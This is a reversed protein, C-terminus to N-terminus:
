ASKALSWFTMSKSRFVIYPHDSRNQFASPGYKEFILNADVFKVNKTGKQFWFPINSEMDPKPRFFWPNGNSNCFPVFKLFKILFRFYPSEAKWIQDWFTEAVDLDIKLGNQLETTPGWFWGFIAFFANKFSSTTKSRIKTKEAFYVLIHQM